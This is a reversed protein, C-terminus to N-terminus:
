QVLLTLFLSPHTCDMIFLYDHYCVRIKKLHVEVNATQQHKEWIKVHKMIALQRKSCDVILAFGIAHYLVIIPEKTCEKCKLVANQITM